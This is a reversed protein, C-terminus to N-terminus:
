PAGWDMPGLVFRRQLRESVLEWAREFYARGETWGPGARWGSHTISVKTTGAVAGPLLDVTVLTHANRLTALHPPFNWTFVLRRNPLLEVLTCGEGGKSGPEASSDFLMEYAGGPRLAIRAHPAFFTAVGDVTTWAAWVQEASAQVVVSRELPRPAPAPSAVRQWTWEAERPTGGVRGEIRATLTEGARRYGIRQPFHHQPASFTVSREARGLLAFSAPAQGPPWAHYRVVGDVCDIQLHETTAPADPRESRSTGVLLAPHPRLWQEQLQAGDQESEWVGVLWDLARLDTCPSVSREAAPGAGRAAPAVTRPSSTACGLALGLLWAPTWSTDKHSDM